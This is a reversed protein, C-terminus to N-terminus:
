AVGSLNKVMYKYEGTAHKGGSYDFEVTVIRMEFSHTNNIIANQASTIVIDKTTSFPGTLTTLALIATGSAADDIRYTVASPSVALESEDFFSLTLLATSKENVEAYTNPVAM